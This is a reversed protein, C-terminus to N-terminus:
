PSSTSNSYILQVAYLCNNYSSCGKNYYINKKYLHSLRDHNKLLDFIYKRNYTRKELKTLNMYLNSFQYRIYINRMQTYDKHTANKKIIYATDFWKMFETNFNGSM